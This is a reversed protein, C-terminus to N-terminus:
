QVQPFCSRSRPVHPEQLADALPLEDLITRLIRAKGKRDGQKIRNIKIMRAAKDMSNALAKADHFVAARCFFSRSRGDDFKDIMTELLRIRKRQQEVFKRTGREKIFFLNPLIRKPSPYSPSEKMQEYEEATKFKVCPFERCEACVELGKNKVCCTIFSCTPHKKHFGPGACGPCRSPGATYFRPCMGCDLGCAAISPYRKTPHKHSDIKLNKM